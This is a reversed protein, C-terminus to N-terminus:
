SVKFNCNYCVYVVPFPLYFSEDGRDYIMYNIITVILFPVITAIETLFVCCFHLIRSIKEIKGNLEGYYPTREINTEVIWCVFSHLTSYEITQFTMKWLFTQASWKSEHIFIEFKKILKLTNGFHFIQVLYYSITTSETTFIYFTWGFEAASKAKFLFFALSSVLQQAVTIIVLWNKSKLPWEQDSKCPYVGMTHHYGQLARFLYIRGAMVAIFLRSILINQPLFKWGM